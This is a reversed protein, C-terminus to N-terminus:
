LRALSNARGTDHIATQRVRLVVSDCSGPELFSLDRNAAECCMCDDEQNRDLLCRDLTLFEARYSAVIGDVGRDGFAARKRGYHGRKYADIPSTLATGQLNPHLNQGVSRQLRYLEIVAGIGKIDVAPDRGQLM